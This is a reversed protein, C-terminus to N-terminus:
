RSIWHGEPKPEPKHVWSLGSCGQAIGEFGSCTSPIPVGRAKGAAVLQVVLESYVIALGHDCPAEVPRGGSGVGVIFGQQHDM